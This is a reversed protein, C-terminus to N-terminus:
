QIARHYTVVRDIYIPGITFCAIGFIILVVSKILFKRDNQKCLRKRLLLRILGSLIFIAGFVPYLIYWIEFFFIYDM